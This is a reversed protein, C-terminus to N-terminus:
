RYSYSRFVQGLADSDGLGPCEIVRRPRGDGEEAQGGEVVQRPPPVAPRRPLQDALLVVDEHGHTFSGSFFFGILSWYEPCTIQM